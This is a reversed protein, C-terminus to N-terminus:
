GPDKMFWAEAHSRGHIHGDKRGDESKAGQSTNNLYPESAFGQPQGSRPALAQAARPM